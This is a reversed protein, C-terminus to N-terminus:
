RIIKSETEAVPDLQGVVSWLGSSVEKPFSDLVFTSIWEEVDISGDQMYWIHRQLPNHKLRLDLQIKYAKSGYYPYPQVGSEYFASLENKM